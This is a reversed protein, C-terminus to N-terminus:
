FSVSKHANQKVKKIKLFVYMFLVCVKCIFYLSAKAIFVVNGKENELKDQHWLNKM